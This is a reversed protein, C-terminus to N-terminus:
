SLLSHIDVAKVRVDWPPCCLFTNPTVIDIANVSLADLEDASTSETLGCKELLRTMDAVFESTNHAIAFCVCYILFRTTSLEYFTFTKFV